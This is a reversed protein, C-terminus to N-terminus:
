GKVAEESWTWFDRVLDADSAIPNITRVAKDAWYAGNPTVDNEALYIATEAGQAPTKLRGTMYGLKALPRALQKYLGPGHRYFLNTNVIGPHVAYSKLGIDGYRDALAVTFLVQALKSERYSTMAHYAASDVRAIAAFADVSDCAGKESSLSSISIVKKQDSRAILDFLRQFLLFHGLYNVQFQSEFGDETLAYPPTMIGANFIAVDLTGVAGQVSEAFANVSAFSALDLQFPRCRAAPAQEGIAQCAAEANAYTRSTVLVNNGGRALTLATEFGMGSNSGTILVNM